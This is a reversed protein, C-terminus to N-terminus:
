NSGGGGCRWRILKIKRDVTRVGVWEGTGNCVPTVKRGGCPKQWGCFDAYYARCTIIRSSLVSLVSIKKEKELSLSLSLSVALSDLISALSM